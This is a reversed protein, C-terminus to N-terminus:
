SKIELICNIKEGSISSQQSLWWYVCLLWEVALMVSLVFHLIQRCLLMACEKCYNPKLSNDIALALMFKMMKSNIPALFWRAHKQSVIEYMKLAKFNSQVTKIIGIEWM